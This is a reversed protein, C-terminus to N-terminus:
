HKSKLQPKPKPTTGPAPKAPAPKAPPKKLKVRSLVINRMIAVADDPRFGLLEGRQLGLLGATLDVESFLIKPSDPKGLAFLRLPYQRRQAVTSSRRHKPETVPVAGVIGKGSFLAHTAPLPMLKQDPYLSDAFTKFSQGFHSPRGSADAILLGGRDLFAKIAARQADDLEFPGTGTMCALKADAFRKQGLEAAQADELSLKVGVENGLITAFRGLAQPEPNWNGKYALRVLKASAAPRVDSRPVVATTIFRNSPMEMGVAYWCLNGLTHFIEPAKEPDGMHLPLSIEKPMHAWLIRVGNYLVRVPPKKVVSTPRSYIDHGDDLTAFRLGPFLAEALKPVGATMSAGGQDASTLVLGGGEMYDRLTRKQAATFKPFQHSALYLIPINLLTRGPVDLNVIQWGVRKEFERSLWDVFFRVDYPRNNWFGDFEVKGMVVPSLGRALFLLAWSTSFIEGKPGKWSGDKQQLSLLKRAGADYWDIDGLFRLGSAQGIRELNFLYFFMDRDTISFNKHLYGVGKQINKSVYDKGVETFQDRYCYYETLYLTAVGAATMPLTPKYMWQMDKPIEEAAKVDTPPPRYTWGGTRADQTLRWYGDLKTWLGKPLEAQARTAAWLGLVGYSTVARDGSPTWDKGLMRQRSGSRRSRTRDASTKKPRTMSFSGDESLADVMWLADRELYPRYARVPLESLMNLRMSVAYAGRLDQALCWDIARRLPRDERDYGASLLAWTAMMSYSGFNTGELSWFGPFPTPDWRGDAKQKSLLYKAGREVAARIEQETLPKAPTPAEAASLRGALSALVGVTTVTAWVRRYRVQQRNM